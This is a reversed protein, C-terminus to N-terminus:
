RPARCLAGPQALTGPTGVRGNHHQTEEGERGGRHGKRANGRAGSGRGQCGPVGRGGEEIGKREGEQEERRAM